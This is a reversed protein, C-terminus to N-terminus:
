EFDYNVCKATSAIHSIKCADSAICSITKIKTIKISEERNQLVIWFLTSTVPEASSKAKCRM